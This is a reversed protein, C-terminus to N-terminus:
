DNRSYKLNYMEKLMQIEHVSQQVRAANEANIDRLLGTVDIIGHSLKSEAARRVATRLTIIEEDSAVLQRYREVDDQQQLQEQQNNFLFVDRQVDLMSRQVNLRAKDNSRTYLAGINWTLRAGIIGNLTWRRRLMDEFMNLGPYGYFGQVFVSLRPMLSANLALERADALRLQADIAALEPRQFAASQATAGYEAPRVPATVEIGCFVALLRQLTQRQSQLSVLQQGTTLREAKVAQFDSEAATGHRLMSALQEENSQLLHQLDQKLQIQEDILLLAFYLENVRRRVNYINVATQAQEVDGQRRAIERQSSIAGGDYVTQQVDIGIRYQDKSLGRLNVGLQQMMAEMQEPWATVDSQLTAQATATVQPLWGKQINDITLETTRAILDYQRILPYNREAAEQCEDLTQAASFSFHGIIFLLCIQLRRM